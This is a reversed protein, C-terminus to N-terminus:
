HARSLPYRRFGVRELDSSSLRIFVLVQIPERKGTDSLATFYRHWLGNAQAHVFYPSVGIPAQKDDGWTLPRKEYARLSMRSAAWKEFLQGRSSFM